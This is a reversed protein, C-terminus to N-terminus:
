NIAMKPPIEDKNTTYVIASVSIFSVFLIIAKSM